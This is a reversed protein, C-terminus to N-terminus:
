YYLNANVYLMKENCVHLLAVSVASMHGADPMEKDSSDWRYGVFLPSYNNTVANSFLM